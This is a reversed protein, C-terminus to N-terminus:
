LCRANLDITLTPRGLAKLAAALFTKLEETPAAWDTSKQEDALMLIQDVLLVKGVPNATELGAANFADGIWERARRADLHDVDAASLPVNYRAGEADIVSVEYNM